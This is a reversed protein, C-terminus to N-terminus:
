PAPDGRAVQDTTPDDSGAPDPQGAGGRAAEEAKAVAAKFRGAAAEFEAVCEASAYIALRMAVDFEVLDFRTVKGPRTIPRGARDVMDTLEQVQASMSPPPAGRVVMTMPVAGPKLYVLAFTGDPPMGEVKVQQQQGPQPSM